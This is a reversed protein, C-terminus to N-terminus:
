CLALKINVSNNIEATTEQVETSLHEDDELEYIIEINNDPEQTQYNTQMPATSQSSLQSVDATYQMADGGYHDELGSVTKNCIISLLLDDDPEKKETIEPLGGGTKYLQRRQFAASKRLLKKRNEYCRKLSEVDRPCSPGCSNFQQAIKKWTENKEIVTVADTKKNEIIDKFKAAINILLSRDNNTFNASRKKKDFEM